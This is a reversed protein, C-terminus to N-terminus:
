DRALWRQASFSLVAAGAIVAAMPLATGDHLLGLVTAALAGASFQLTGFLAAATGAAHPFPQLTRAMANASILNLSSVYCFLPVVIGLLGGFGSAVCALLALGAATIIGVGVALLFSSGLRTVLRSNVYAGTMLGVVNLGFLLGFAQPSIGYLEIYVFPTGAIYTFLGAFAMAGTLIAGLAQRNRLVILYAGAMAVVSTPHRREPPNTEPVLRAVALLCLLGFGTLVGFIARWGLWLLVQGGLLPAALPALGTVMVMLSMVRAAQNGDFLDRVIARATVSGAGGGLAQVVRAAAMAGVGTSFACLLSSVVYLSIGVLLVPRRGFRDSLPGYLLQGGAFGLFFASLTLQVASVPVAFDQAITPLSPLYMDISMPGFAALTGLIVVLGRLPRPV